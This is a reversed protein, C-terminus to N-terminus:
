EVGPETYQVGGHVMDVHSQIWIDAVEPYVEEDWDCNQYRCSVKVLALEDEELLQIEQLAVVHDSGFLSAHRRSVDQAEEPYLENEWGCGDKLCEYMRPAM